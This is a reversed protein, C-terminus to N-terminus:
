PFGNSGRRPVIPDVAKGSMILLRNIGNDHISVQAHNKTSPVQDPGHIHFANWKGIVKRKSVARCRKVVEGIMEVNLSLRLTVGMITVVRLEELDGVAFEGNACYLMLVGLLGHTQELSCRALAGEDDLERLHARSCRCACRSAIMRLASSIKGSAM